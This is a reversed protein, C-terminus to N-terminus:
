KNIRNFNVEDGFLDSFSDIIRNQNDSLNVPTKINLLIYLDGKRRRNLDPLGKGQLRLQEGSKTGPPIKVKIKEGISNLVVDAGKVAQHFNVFCAVYLDAGDRIFIDHKKETFYIILDGDEVSGVGQNGGGKIPLYTDSSVGPPVEIEVEDVKKELGGSYGLGNCSSCEQVNVIQGLFSRQVQRQEGSGNCKICKSPSEGTRMMKKIKIKKKVGSNIEELSLPITIKLSSAKKSSRSRGSSGFIDGFPSSGGFIDGFASFIDNVDMNGSFSGSSGLGAHGFQDYQSRKNSDSLVSYAEAAEKFKSEAKSDGPNKDPHYKMAIKRYAKKIEQDSASKAVGLIEYFDRM